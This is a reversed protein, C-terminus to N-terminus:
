QGMIHMLDLEMKERSSYPTGDKLFINIYSITCINDVTISCQRNVGTIGQNRWDLEKLTCEHWFFRWNGWSM